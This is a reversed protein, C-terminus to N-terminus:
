TKFKAIMAELRAVHEALQKSALVTQQVNQETTKSTESISELSSEIQSAIGKQQEAARETTDNQTTIQDVAMTILDLAQELKESEEITKLAKQDSRTMAEVADKVGQQLKSITTQIEETSDHTRKALSRVEDAVVAFGRGQDGARAAEIAANLALLNTQEAISKIVDLVQNISDSQQSLQNIVEVSLKIEDGLEDTAKRAGILTQKGEITQQNANALCDAVKETSESVILVAELIEAISTTIAHTDELQTNVALGTQGAIAEVQSSQQSVGESANLVSEVLDHVNVAMQNFARIADALEDKTRVNASVRTDGAALKTAVQTLSNTTMGISFSMGVFLYVVIALILAVIIAITIFGTQQVDIRQQIREILKDYLDAKAFYYADLQKDFQSDMDVKKLRIEDAILFEEELFRLSEDILGSQVKLDSQILKQIAPALGEAANAMANIKPQASAVEDAVISLSDFSGSSIASEGLAFSAVGYTRALLSLSLLRKETLLRALSATDIEPDNAIGTLNATRIYLNNLQNLVTELNNFHDVSSQQANGLEQSVESLLATVRATSQTIADAQEKSLYSQKGIDSLEKNFQKIAETQAAPISQGSRWNMDNVIIKILRRQYNDIVQFFKLGVLENESHQITRSVDGSYNFGLFALPM